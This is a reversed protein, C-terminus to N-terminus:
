VTNKQTWNAESLRILEKQLWKGKIAEMENEKITHIHWMKVDLGNDSAM